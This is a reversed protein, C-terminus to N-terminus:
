GEGPLAEERGPGGGYGRDDLWRDDATLVFADVEMGGYWDTRRGIPTMGLRRTVAVSADNGPRVIAYVERLGATFARDVVGQAAETAYGKGWSDPHLHWGVEIDSTPQNDTGPMPKLLVTGAVVGTDRVQVAWIGYTGGYDENGARWRRVAAAAEGPDTMARPQAGLWRAVGWRSYIDYFRSLDAADETWDRIVLRQTELHTV